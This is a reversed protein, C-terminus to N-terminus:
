DELFDTAADFRERGVVFVVHNLKPPSATMSVERQAARARSDLAGLCLGLIDNVLTM